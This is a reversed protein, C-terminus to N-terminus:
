AAMPTAETWATIVRTDEKVSGFVLEVYPAEFDRDHWPGAAPVAPFLNAITGGDYDVGPANEKLAECVVLRLVKEVYAGMPQAECEWRSVTEPAARGELKKALEALTLDMIKRMARIEFGRLKVPMLCRVVAATALLENMKPLEVSKEGDAEVREIAANDVTTRLGVLATADYRALTRKSMAETQMTELM